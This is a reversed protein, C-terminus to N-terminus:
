LNNSVSLCVSSYKLHKQFFETTIMAQPNVNERVAVLGSDAAELIEPYRACM